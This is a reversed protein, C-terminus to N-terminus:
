RWAEIVKFGDDRTLERQGAFVARITKEYPLSQNAVMFLRGGRPRLARGAARIMNEGITPEATRGRHFPPNMVVADYSRPVPEVHLCHWFVDSPVSPALSAMNRRAALSAAHSAEYLDIREVQPANSALTVSLYAWGACFDAVAGSLSAPLHACLLKSGPDFRDHSFMGPATKFAGVAKDDPEQAPLASALANRAGAPCSLWFALGHHKSARGDPEIASSVRRALSAVGDTKGGAIVIRGGTRMRASLDRLWGENQGRHRGCLIIGLDYDEGESACAVRHGAKELSLYDPRFDQVLLPQAAFDDPLRLHGPANVFIVRENAGPWDILGTQFPHLLTKIADQTVTPPVHILPRQCAQFSFPALQISAGLNTVRDCLRDPTPRKKPTRASRRASSRRM